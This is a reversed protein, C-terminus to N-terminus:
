ESFKWYNQILVECEKRKEPWGRKIQQRLLMYTEDTSAFERMRALRKDSMDTFEEPNSEDVESMFVEVKNIRESSGDATSSRSLMDALIQKIGPKYRLDYGYRQLAMLMNELRVLSKGMEKKVISKLPRHDSLITLDQKGYIYQDFRGCAFVVALCELELLHYRSEVDKLNVLQTLTHM